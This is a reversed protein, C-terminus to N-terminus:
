NGKSIKFILDVNEMVLIALGTVTVALIGRADILPISQVIRVAMNMQNFYMQGFRFSQFFIFIDIVSYKYINKKFSFAM